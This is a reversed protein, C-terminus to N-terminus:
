VQWRKRCEECINNFNTLNKVIFEKGCVKCIVMKTPDFDSDKIERM